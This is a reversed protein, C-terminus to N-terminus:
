GNCPSSHVISDLYIGVSFFSQVSMCYRYLIRHVIAHLVRQLQTDALTSSEL